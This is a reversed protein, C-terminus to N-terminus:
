QSAPRAPATPAPKFGVLEVHTTTPAGHTPQDVFDMRAIRGVAPAYWDTERTIGQGRNGAIGSWSVVQEVKFADFAGAPTEVREVGVVKAQRDGSAAWSGTRYVYSASWSKGVFLPFQLKGDSPQYSGTATKVLNGSADLALAGGNLTPSGDAAVSSVTQTYTANKSPELANAYAFTWTEGVAFAPADVRAPPAPQAVPAPLSAGTQAVAAFPSLASAALALSAIRKTTESNM